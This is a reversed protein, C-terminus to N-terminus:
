LMRAGAPSIVPNFASISPEFRVRGRRSDEADTCRPRPMVWRAGGVNAALGEDSVLVGDTSSSVVPGKSPGGDSGGCGGWVGWGAAREVANSPLWRDSAHLGVGVWWGESSVCGM